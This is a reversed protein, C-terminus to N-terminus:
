FLGFSLSCFTGLNTKNWSNRSSRGSVAPPREVWLVWVGCYWAPAWPGHSGRDGPWDIHSFGGDLALRAAGSHDRQTRVGRAPLSRAETSRLRSSGPDTSQVETAGYKESPMAQLGWESLPGRWDHAESDM